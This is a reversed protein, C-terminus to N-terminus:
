GWQGGSSTNGKSGTQKDLLDRQQQFSSEIAKSVQQYEIIVNSVNQTVVRQLGNIFQESVTELPSNKAALTKIDNQILNIGEAAAQLFALKQDRLDFIANVYDAASAKAPLDTGVIADYSNIVFQYDGQVSQFAQQMESLAQVMDSANKVVDQLAQKSGVPDEQTKQTIATKIADASSNENIGLYNFYANRTTNYNAVANSYRVGISTTFKSKIWQSITTAFNTFIAKFSEFYSKQRPSVINQSENKILAEAIAIAERQKQLREDPKQVSEAGKITADGMEKLVGSIDRVVRGVEASGLAARKVSENNIFSKIAGVASGARGEISNLIAYNAEGGVLKTIKKVAKLTFKFKKSQSINEMKELAKATADLLEPVKEMYTAILELKESGVNVLEGEKIILKNLVEQFKDLNTKLMEVVAETTIETKARLKNIADTLMDPLVTQKGEIAAQARLSTEDVRYTMMGFENEFRVDLEFPAKNVNELLEQMPRVLEQLAKLDALSWKTFDEGKENILADIKGNVILFEQQISEIQDSPIKSSLEVLRKYVADSMTGTKKIDPRKGAKVYDNIENIRETVQKYTNNVMETEAPNKKLNPDELAKKLFELIKKEGSYSTNNYSEQGKAIADNLVSDFLGKRDGNTSANTALYAIFEPSVTDNLAFFDSYPINYTDLVQKLEKFTKTRDAPTKNEAEFTQKKLFSNKLDRSRDIQIKNALDLRADLANNEIPKGPKFSSIENIRNEIETQLRDIKESDFNNTLESVITRDLSELVKKERAYDIISYDVAPDIASKGGKKMSAIENYILSYKSGAKNSSVTDITRMKNDITNKFDVGFNDLVTGKRGGAGETFTGSIMANINKTAAELSAQAQGLANRADANNPNIALEQKASFSDLVAKNANIKQQELQVKPDAVDEYEINREQEKIREELQIREAENKPEEPRRWEETKGGPKEGPREGPKEASLVTNSYGVVIGVLVLIGYLKKM